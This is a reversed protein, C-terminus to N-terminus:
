ISGELLPLRPTHRGRTRKQPRREGKLTTMKLRTRQTTLEQADRHVRTGSNKDRQREQSLQWMGHILRLILLPGIIYGEDDDVMQLTRSRCWTLDSIAKDRDPIGKTLHHFRGHLWRAVVYVWKRRVAKAVPLRVQARPTELASEPKKDRCAGEEGGGAKQGQM